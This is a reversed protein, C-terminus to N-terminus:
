YLHVFNEICIEKKIELVTYFDWTNERARIEPKLLTEKTHILHAACWWRKFNITKSLQTMKWKLSISTSTAYKIEWYLRNRKKKALHHNNEKHITSMHPLIFSFFLEKKNEYAMQDPCRIIYIIHESLLFYLEDASFCIHM